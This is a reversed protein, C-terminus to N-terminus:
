AFLETHSIFIIVLFLNLLAQLVKDVRHVDAGYEVLKRMTNAHGATAAYMLMTKGESDVNVQAVLLLDDKPTPNEEQAASFVKRYSTAQLRALIALWNGALALEFVSPPPKPRTYSRAM